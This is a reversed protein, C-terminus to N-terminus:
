SHKPNSGVLVVREPDNIEGTILKVDKIVKKLSDAVIQM